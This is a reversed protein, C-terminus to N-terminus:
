NCFYGLIVVIGKIMLVGWKSVINIINVLWWGVM